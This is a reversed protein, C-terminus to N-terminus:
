QQRRAAEEASGTGLVPKGKMEAPRAIGYLALLTPAVDTLAAADSLITRNSLLVGPVQRYDMCHDGSWPDLNDEFVVGPVAGLVTGWGARYGRNYGILLDPAGNIYPGSYAETALDARTIAPDGSVPDGVDLLERALQHRLADAASGAEVIGHAERGRLNLYLGNLGLGYARTHAWDVGQFSNGGTALGPALALYGHEHLWANLNFSRHYPAFGHDSVVLVTADEGAKELAEGLVADMQRYLAPVADGFKEAVEATYSPSDPDMARWFMHSNLDLSSFYFFFLGSRYRALEEHFARLQEDLVSRAQALYEADDLYGGSLAKTDEAIGQTYFFGLEEWLERSFNDPTSIPLAPDGPDMNVPTVYLQFTPSVQKLFFRCIGKVSALHPLLDFRVEIWPSWEGQRLVFERGALQFDAAAAQADIAVRLPLSSEPDGKRFTNYPGFVATNVIGNEVKVPYVRGGNVSGSAAFADDTYFAFTGYTGLVDPTGMGSLTRGRTPVPPFNSPIRYVVTPVGAADLYEWFAKGQRLLVTRGHSLPLIWQGLRLAHAPPEVRSTSLYLEMTAPDRHIFDFIGHGGPNLGTILNSWAVPSQPPISTALRRVGGNLAALRAFNPMSGAAIMRELLQPDMGDIGLVIVRPSHASLSPSRTCAPLFLLLMAVLTLM